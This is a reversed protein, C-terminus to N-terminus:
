ADPGNEEAATADASACQSARTGPFCACIPKDDSHIFHLPGLFMTRFYELERHMKVFKSAVGCRM